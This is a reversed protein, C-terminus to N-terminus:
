ADPVVFEIRRNQWRGRRTTNDAIPRAEGYGIADLREPAIGRVTLYTIVAAARRDSLGLNFEDSGVNDTHGEILVNLGDCQRITDAIADLLPYSKTELEASGSTFYVQDTGAITEIRRACADMSVKEPAAQEAAGARFLLEFTIDTTPLIQVGAATELRQLGPLLNFDALNLRVPRITSASVIDDTLLVLDLEADLDITTENLTLSVPLSIAKSRRQQLGSLTDPDIHATVEATPHRFSQFLLYRLRADRLDDDTEVSDLSVLLRAAGDPAIDGGIESFSSTDSAAGQVNSTFSLSSAGPQLTWGQTLPSAAALGTLTLFCLTIWPLYRIM